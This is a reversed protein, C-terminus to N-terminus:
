LVIISSWEYLVVAYPEQHFAYKKLTNLCMNAATPTGNVFNQNGQLLKKLEKEAREPIHKM